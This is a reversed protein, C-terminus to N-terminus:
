IDFNCLEMKTFPLVLSKSASVQIRCHDLYYVETTKINHGNLTYIESNLALKNNSSKKDHLKEWTLTKINLIWENNNKIILEWNVMFQEIVIQIYEEFNIYLDLINFWFLIGPLM